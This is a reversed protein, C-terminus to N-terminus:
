KESELAEEGQVKSEEANIENEIEEIAKAEGEADYAKVGSFFHPCYRKGFKFVGKLM